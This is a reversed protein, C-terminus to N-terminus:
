QGSGQEEYRVNILLSLGLPGWHNIGYLSLIAVITTLCQRKVSWCFFDFLLILATYEGMHVTWSIDVVGGGGGGIEWWPNRIAPNNKPNM